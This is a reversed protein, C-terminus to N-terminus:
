ELAGSPVASLESARVEDDAGGVYSASGGDRRGREEGGGRGAGLLCPAAPAVHAARVEVGRMRVLLEGAERQQPEGGSGGIAGGGGGGAWSSGVKGHM